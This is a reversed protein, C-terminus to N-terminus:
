YYKCPTNLGKMRNLMLCSSNETAGGRVYGCNNVTFYINDVLFKGEVGQKDKYKIHYLLHIYGAGKGAMRDVINQETDEYSYTWRQKCCQPNENLFEEKTKYYIITYGKEPVDSNLPRKYYGGSLLAIGESTPNSKDKESFSNVYRALVTGSIGEQNEMFYDVALNMRQKYTIKKGTQQCYGRLNNVANISWISLIIIFPILIIAIIILYIKKRHKNFWSSQEM